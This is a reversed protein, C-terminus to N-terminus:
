KFIEQLTDQYKGWSHQEKLRKMANTRLTNLKNRMNMCKELKYLYEEENFINDVLFGTKDNEIIENIGGVNSAVVPLGLSIAELVTNPMGDFWSTYLYLDYREGHIGHLGGRYAGYTHVNKYKSFERLNFAKDMVSTGYVHFELDSDKSKELIKGFIEPLKEYDIRSAWLINWIKKDTYDLKKIQIFDVPQYLVSFKTRDLGFMESLVNIINCNDTIIQKVDNIIYPIFDFAFGTFQGEKSKSPSFCFCYYDSYKSLEKSHSFLLNFLLHSNVNVVKSAKIEILFRKLVVLRESEDLDSFSNGFDFFYNGEDLESLIESTTQETTILGIKRNPFEKRFGKILNIVLKDAGGRKLWPCLILTDIKEPFFSLMECLYNDINNNQLKQKEKYLPVVPPYLKPEIINISKWETLMWNDYFDEKKKSKEKLIFLRLYLKPFFESAIKKILMRNDERNKIKWFINRIWKNWKLLHSSVRPFKLSLFQMFLDEKEEKDQTRINWRKLELDRKSFIRKPGVLYDEWSPFSSCGTQVFSITKPIIRVTVGASLADCYFSKANVFYKGNNIINIYDKKSVIFSEGWINSTLISLNTFYQDNSSLSTHTYASAGYFVKEEPVYISDVQTQIEGFEQLLNLSVYDGSKLFLLFEGNCDKASFKDRLVIKASIDSSFLKKLDIDNATGQNPIITVDLINTNNRLLLINRLTKYLEFTSNAFDLIISYTKKNKKM